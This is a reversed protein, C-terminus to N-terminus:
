YIDDLRNNDLMDLLDSDRMPKDNEAASKAKPEKTKDHRAKAQAQANTSKTSTGPKKQPGSNQTNERAEPNQELFKEYVSKSKKNTRKGTQRDSGAERKLKKINGTKVNHIRSLSRTKKKRTMNPEPHSQSPREARPRRTM